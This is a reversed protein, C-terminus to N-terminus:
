AKPMVATDVNVNVDGERARAREFSFTHKIEPNFRRWLEYSTVLIIPIGVIIATVRRAAPKYKPPV